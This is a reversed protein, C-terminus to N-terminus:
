RRSQPRSAGRSSPWGNSTGGARKMSTLSRACSGGADPPLARRMAPPPRRTPVRVCLARDRPRARAARLIASLALRAMARVRRGVEKPHSGAYAAAESAWKNVLPQVTREATVIWSAHERAYLQLEAWLAPREDALVAGREHELSVAEEVTAKLHAVADAEDLLWASLARTEALVRERADLEAADAKLRAKELDSRSAGQPTRHAHSGMKGGVAKLMSVLVPSDAPEERLADDLPTHGFEDECNIQIAALHVLFNVANVRLNSAALHLATRGYADQANVDCRFRVLRELHPMDNAAAARCLEGAKNITSGLHAAPRLELLLAAAADHHSRVAERLPTYGREDVANVDASLELLARATRVNGEAAALHLATRGEATAENVDVGHAAIRRLREDGDPLLAAAGLQAVVDRAQQVGGLRALAAAADAKDAELADALPTRGRSDRCNVDARAAVLLEVVRASGGCAALHLARRGDFDAHNLELASTTLM